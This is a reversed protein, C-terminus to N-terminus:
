FLDGYGKGLCAQDVSRRLTDPLQTRVAGAAVLCIAGRAMPATRYCSTISKARDDAAGIRSVFDAEFLKQVHFMSWNM